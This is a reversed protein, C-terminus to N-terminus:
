TGGEMEAKTKRREHRMRITPHKLEMVVYGNTFDIDTPDFTVPTVIRATNGAKNRAARCAALRVVLEGHDNSSV